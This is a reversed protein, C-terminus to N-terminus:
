EPALRSLAAFDARDVAGEAPESRPRPKGDKLLELSIVRISAGHLRLIGHGLPRETWLVNRDRLAVFVPGNESGAL